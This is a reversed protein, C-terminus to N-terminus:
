NSIQLLLIWSTEMAALNCGFLASIVEQDRQNEGLPGNITATAQLCYKEARCIEGKWVRLGSHVVYVQRLLRKGWGRDQKRFQFILILCCVGGKMLWACIRSVAKQIKCPTYSRDYILLHTRNFTNMQWDPVQCCYVHTLHAPVSHDKRLAWKSLNMKEISHKETLSDQIWYTFVLSM